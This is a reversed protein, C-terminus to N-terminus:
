SNGGVSSNTWGAELRLVDAGSTLMIKDPDPPLNAQNSRPVLHCRCRPNASRIELCSSHSDLAERAPLRSGELQHRQVQFCDELHANGIRAM